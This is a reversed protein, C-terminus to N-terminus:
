PGSRPFWCPPRKAVKKALVNAVGEFFFGESRPPGDNKQCFVRKSVLLHFCLEAKPLFIPDPHM